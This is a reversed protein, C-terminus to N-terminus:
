VLRITLKADLAKALRRLFKVSPNHAFLNVPLFQLLLM